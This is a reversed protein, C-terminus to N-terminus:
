PGGSLSYDVYADAGVRVFVVTDCPGAPTPTCPGPPCPAFPLPDVLTPELGSWSVVGARTFVRGLNDKTWRRGCVSIHDPLTAVDHIDRAGLGLIQRHIVGPVIALGLVLVVIAALIWGARRSITLAEEWL